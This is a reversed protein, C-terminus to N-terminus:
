PSVGPSPIETTESEDELVPKPPAKAIEIGLVLLCNTALAKQVPDLGAKNVMLQLTDERDYFENIREEEPINDGITTAISCNTDKSRSYAAIFHTMDIEMWLSFFRKMMDLNEGELTNLLDLMFNITEPDNANLLDRWQFIHSELERDLKTNFMAPNSMLTGMAKERITVSPNAHFADLLSYFTKKPTVKISADDAFPINQRSSRIDAEDVDIPAPESKETAKEFLNLFYDVRVAMIILVLIAIYKM